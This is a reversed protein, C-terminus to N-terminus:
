AYNRDISQAVPIASDTTTLSLNRIYLPVYGPKIFGIDITQAGSYTFAYTAGAISDAQSLITSTGASLIVVDSGSSIGTFTVVNTDLPYQYSQATANSTTIVYASTIATTNTTGTTIKLRIKIGLSPDIGTEGSLATGLTTATYSASLASFGAGDNKDLQYQYTYNTATGGAMVLASNSFGTIGLAYFDIEFTATMGITPMYLGGTSTFAAGGTLTVYPATASTPENMMILMRGVTASSFYTSWHTGYVSTQATLLLLGGISKRKLNLVAAAPAITAFYNCYVNEELINTSSNDGSMYAARPDTTYIRQFKINNAAAGNALTYISGCINATGMNVPSAFTGFNRFKINKCGAAAISILATYPHNNAVPISLGSFTCNGTNASLLYVYGAYTTSTTGSVNESYIVDTSVIDDCTILQMAGCVINPRTWTCDNVRTCITSYSAANARNTNSRITNDIFSFGTIDTLTNVTASSSALSVRTWVCDTFTGGAFCLSMTLASTLLATTPKNGIGVKTWNLPSALESVILADIIGTNSIQVSFAQAFSPYWEINAKDINVVGGGTTTFDYRTTLTASPIIVANRATTGCNCLFVNPVVVSLGSVPVYGSNATGNHGIRVLGTNSVWCVKGRAEETGITTVTGANPYFEYDGSGVSKEIFIGAVHRLTGHNPIQFQQNAAGSTTGLPFWEGNVNFSGLRNATVTASEDGMIELFGVTSAGSGTATIGSLTLAGATYEVGNWQKIMLWGTAPITGSVVPAVTMSSYVCMLKGSASGRTVLSNMAPLTGSGGTYAILRVNRADINCVGGLTASLTITGMSTAATTSTNANNLGFRSHQDITLTGGNINYIDGGTKGTLADINQATTITFTAM